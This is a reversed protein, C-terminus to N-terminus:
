STSPLHVRPMLELQQSVMESTVARAMFEGGVVTRRFVQAPMVSIRMKLAFALMQFHNKPVNFVFFRQFSGDFRISFVSRHRGCRFLYRECIFEDLVFLVPAHYSLPLPRSSIQLHCMESINASPLIPDHLNYWPKRGIKKKPYNMTSIHSGVTM